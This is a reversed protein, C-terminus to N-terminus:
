LLGNEYADGIFGDRHLFLSRMLVVNEQYEPLAREVRSRAVGFLHDIRHVKAPFMEHVEDLITQLETFSQKGVKGSEYTLINYHEEKLISIEHFIDNVLRDLFDTTNNTRFLAHCADKLPLLFSDRLDELEKFNLLGSLEEPELRIEQRPKGFRLVYEAVKKEYRDHIGQFNHHSRYFLEVITWIIPTALENRM